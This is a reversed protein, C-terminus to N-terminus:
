GNEGSGLSITDVNKTFVLEFLYKVGPLLYEMKTRLRFANEDIIVNSDYEENYIGGFVYRYGVNGPDAIEIAALINETTFEDENMIYKGVIDDSVDVSTKKNNEIANMLIQKHTLKNEMGKGLAFASLLNIYGLYVVQYITYLQNLYVKENDEFTIGFYKDYINILGDRIVTYIEIYSENTSILDEMDDIKDIGVGFLAEFHYKFSDFRDSLTSGYRLEDEIISIMDYVLQSDKSVEEQDEYVENRSEFEDGMFVKRNNSYNLNM